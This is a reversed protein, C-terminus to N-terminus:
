NLINPNSYEGGEGKHKIWEGGPDGNGDWDAFEDEAEKMTEFCWRGNYRAETLGHIIDVTFAFRRIGCLGWGEVQRMHLYGQGALYSLLESESM